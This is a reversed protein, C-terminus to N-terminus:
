NEPQRHILSVILSTSSFQDVWNWINKSMRSPDCNRLPEAPVNLPLAEDTPCTSGEPRAREAALACLRCGNDKYARYRGMLTGQLSIIVLLQVLAIIYLCMLELATPASQVLQPSTDRTALRIQLWTELVAAVLCALFAGIVILLRLAHALRHGGGLGGSLRTVM